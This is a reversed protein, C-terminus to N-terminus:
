NLISNMSYFIPIQLFAPLFDPLQVYTNKGPGERWLRGAPLNGAQIHCKM